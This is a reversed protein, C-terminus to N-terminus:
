PSSRGHHSSVSAGSLRTLEVPKYLGLLSQRKITAGRRSFCPLSHHGRRRRSRKGYDRHQRNLELSRTKLVFECWMNVRSSERQAYELSYEDKRLKLDQIEAISRHKVDPNDSLIFRSLPHWPEGSSDILETTQTGGDM